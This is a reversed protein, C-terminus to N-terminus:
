QTLEKPNPLKKLPNTAGDDADLGVANGSGFGGTTGASIPVTITKIHGSRFNSLRLMGSDGFSCSDSRSNPMPLIRIQSVAGTAASYM